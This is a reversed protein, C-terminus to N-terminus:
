FNPVNTLPSIRRNRQLRHFLGTPSVPEEEAEEDEEDLVNSLHNINYSDSSHYSRIANDCEEIISWIFSIEDREAEENRMTEFEDMSLKITVIEKQKCYSARM